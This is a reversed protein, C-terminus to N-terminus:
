ICIMDIKADILYKLIEGLKEIFYCKLNYCLENLYSRELLNTVLIFLILM